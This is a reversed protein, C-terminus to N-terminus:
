SFYDSLTHVSVSLLVFCPLIVCSCMAGKVNILMFWNLKQKNNHSREYWKVILTKTYCESNKLYKVHVIVYFINNNKGEYHKTKLNM